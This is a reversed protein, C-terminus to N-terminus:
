FLSICFMYLRTCFLMYEVIVHQSSRSHHQDQSESVSSTAIRQFLETKASVMSDAVAAARQTCGLYVDDLLPTLEELGLRMRLTRWMPGMSEKRRVLKSITWMFPYVCNLKATVLVFVGVKLQTGTQMRFFTMWFTNGGSDLWRLCTHKVRVFSWQVKVQIWSHQSLPWRRGYSREAQTGLSCLFGLRLDYRSFLWPRSDM